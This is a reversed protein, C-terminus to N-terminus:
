VKPIKPLNLLFNELVFRPNVNSAIQSKAVQIQRLITLIQRITLNHSSKPTNKGVLLERLVVTQTDLWSITSERSQAVEQALKLKEGVGSSLLYYIISSLYNRFEEESLEVGDKSPLEITQCRSIITQLLLDKNSVTLVILTQPPPEELTKLFANQAPITLNQAEFVIGARFQSSYPKLSFQHKLQRIENIGITTESELITIDVSAIQYDELIKRAKEKRESKTGGTVLLSGIM